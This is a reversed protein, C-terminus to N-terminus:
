LLFNKTSNKRRSEKLCKQKYPSDFLIVHFNLNERCVEPICRRTAENVYVTESTRVAEMMTADRFCRDIEVLSCPV